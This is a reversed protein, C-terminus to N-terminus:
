SIEEYTSRHTQVDWFNHMEEGGGRNYTKILLLSLTSIETGWNNIEGGGGRKHTEADWEGKTRKETGENHTERVERM